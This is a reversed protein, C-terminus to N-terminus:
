NAIPATKPMTVIELDKLKNKYVKLIWDYYDEDHKPLNEDDLNNLFNKKSPFYDKILKIFKPITKETEKKFYERSHLSCIVLVNDEFYKYFEFKNIRKILLRHSIQCNPIQCKPFLTRLYCEFYIDHKREM